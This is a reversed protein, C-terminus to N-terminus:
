ATVTPPRGIPTLFKRTVNEPTADFKSSVGSFTVLFNRVGDPLGGVTVAYALLFGFLAGGLATVLSVEVTLLYSRLIAPRFFTSSTRFLSDGRSIRFPESWCFAPPCSCSPWRSCCSHRWDSGFPGPICPPLPARHARRNGPHGHRDHRGSSKAQVKVNVISDWDDAIFQKNAAQQALTPFVAKAYAASPPM